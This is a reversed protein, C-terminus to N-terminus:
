VKDAQYHTHLYFKLDTRPPLNIKGMPNNKNSKWKFEVRYRGPGLDDSPWDKPIASDLQYTTLYVSPDGALALDGLAAINKPDNFPAGQSGWSYRYTTGDSLYQPNPMPTWYWKGGSATALGVGAVVAVVLLWIM